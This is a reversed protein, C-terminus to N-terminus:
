NASRDIEVCNTGDGILTLTDYQTMGFNGALLLTGTDSITITQAVTDYLVTIRGAENCGTIKDTGVSGAATLPQLGKTLAITSGNTVTISAAKTLNFFTGVTVPGTTTLAGGAARSQVDPAQVDNVQPLICGALLLAIVVLAPIKSRM